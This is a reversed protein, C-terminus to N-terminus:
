ILSSKISLKETETSFTSNTHKNQIIKYLYEIIDIGPIDYHSLAGLLMSTIHM